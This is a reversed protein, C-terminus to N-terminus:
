ASIEDPDEGAILLDFYEEATEAGVRWTKFTGNLGDIRIVARRDDNEDVGRLEIVAYDSTQDAYFTVPQREDQSVDRGIQETTMTRYASPGILRCREVRVLGNPVCDAWTCVTYVYFGEPEELPKPEWLISACRSTDEQDDDFAIRIRRGVTASEARAARLMTEFRDVGEDFDGSSHWGAAAFFSACALAALLALALLVELLTFGARVQV